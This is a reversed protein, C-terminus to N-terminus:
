PKAGWGCLKKGKRNHIDAQEKTLRTDSKSWIVPKAVDCFLGGATAAPAPQQCFMILIGFCMM